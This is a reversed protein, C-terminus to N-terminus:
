ENRRYILQEDFAAELLYNTELGDIFWEPPTPERRQDIIVLETQPAFLAPLNQAAELDYPWIIDVPSQRQALYYLQVDQSWYYIRETPESNEVVYDALFSARTLREGFSPWGSEIFQALSEQGRVYRLYHTYYASNEWASLGIAVLLLM